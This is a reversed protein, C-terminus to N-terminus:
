QNNHSTIVIMKEGLRAYPYKGRLEKELNLPNDLYGLDDELKGNELTLPETKNKTEALRRELESKESRLSFFERVAMVTFFLLITLLFYKMLNLKVM